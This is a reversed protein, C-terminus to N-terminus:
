PALAKWYLFMHAFRESAPFTSCGVYGEPPSSKIPFLHKVCAFRHTDECWSCDDRGYAASVPNTRYEVLLFTLRYMGVEDCEYCTYRAQVSTVTRTDGQGPLVELPKDM